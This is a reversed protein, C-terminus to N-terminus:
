DDSSSTQSDAGCGHGGDQHTSISDLAGFNSQDATSLRFHDLNVMAGSVVHSGAKDAGLPAGLVTTSIGAIILLSILVSFVIRTVSKSM